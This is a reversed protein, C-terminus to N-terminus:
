FNQQIDNTEETKANKFMSMTEINQNQVYSSHHRQLNLRKMRLYKRMEPKEGIEIREVIKNCWDIVLERRKEPKCM